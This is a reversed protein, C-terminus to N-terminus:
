LNVEVEKLMSCRDVRNVNIYIGPSMSGGCPCSVSSLWSFSGLKSNCKSCHLRDSFSSFVKTMWPLPELFLGEKCDGLPAPSSLIKTWSQRQKPYHPLISSQTALIQRCKRCRYLAGDTRPDNSVHGFEKVDPPLIKTHKVRNQICKLKYHKYAKHGPDLKCGMKYYLNLQNLFGTNPGICPRASRIHDLSTQLSWSRTRMLYAAVVAASRSVGHYCHVLVAGYEVAKRLFRTTTELHSLLDAEPVDAIQIHLIALHPCSSSVLQPLPILEVTLIHTLKLKGILDLDSAANKDGLYLNEAIKDYSHPEGPDSPSRSSM